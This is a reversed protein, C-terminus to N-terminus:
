SNEKKLVEILKLVNPVLCISSNHWLNFFNDTLLNTFKSSKQLLNFNQEDNKKQSKQDTPVPEHISQMSWSYDVHLPPVTKDLELVVAFSLRILLISPHHFTPNLWLSITPYYALCTCTYSLMPLISVPSQLCYYAPPLQVGMSQSQQMAHVM